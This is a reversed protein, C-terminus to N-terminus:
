YWSSWSCPNGDWISAHSYSTLTISANEPKGDYSQVLKHLVPADKIFKDKVALCTGYDQGQYERSQCVERVDVYKGKVAIVQYFDINTQEYGWSSDLIDGVKLPNVFAKRADRRANMADVRTAVSARWENVSEQRRETNQYRVHFAPKSATGRYAMACPQGQANSYLYIICIGDDITKEINEPIYRWALRKEKSDLRNYM